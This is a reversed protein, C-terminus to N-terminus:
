AAFKLSLVSPARQLVRSSGGPQSSWGSGSGLDASCVEVEGRSRQPSDRSVWREDNGYKEAL